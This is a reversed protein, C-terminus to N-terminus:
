RPRPRTDLSILFDGTLGLANTERNQKDFELHVYKAERKKWLKLMEQM